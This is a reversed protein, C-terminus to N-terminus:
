STQFKKYVESLLIVLKTVTEAVTFHITNEKTEATSSMYDPQVSHVVANVSSIVEFFSSLSTFIVQTLKIKSITVM